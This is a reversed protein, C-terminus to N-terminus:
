VNQDRIGMEQQYTLMFLPLALGGGLGAGFRNRLDLPVTGPSTTHFNIEYIALKTAQGAAALHEQPSKKASSSTRWAGAKSSHTLVCRVRRRSSATCPQCEASVM